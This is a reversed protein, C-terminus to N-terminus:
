DEREHEQRITQEGLERNCAAERRHRAWARYWYEQAKGDPRGDQEWLFYATLRVAEEDIQDHRM